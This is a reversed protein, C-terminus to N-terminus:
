RRRTAAALRTSGEEARGAAALAFEVDLSAVVLARLPAGVLPAREPLEAKLPDLFKGDRQLTFHLHHGTALGTRGVTGIVQGKGVRDGPALGRTVSDLHAYGTVLGGEHEIRVLRGFSGSWGAEVVEGDAVALVPTGRPAAFDVGLHPKRRKLVPHRRAPDFGSTVTLFPLPYRSLVRDLPRGDATYFEGVKRSADEVYFARLALADSGIEVAVLRDAEAREAPVVSESYIARVRTGIKLMGQASLERALVGIRPDLYGRSGERTVVRRKADVHADVVYLARLRREHVAALPAPGPSGSSAIPTSSSCGLSWVTLGTVALFTKSIRRRRM